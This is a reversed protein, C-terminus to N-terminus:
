SLHLYNCFSNQVFHVLRDAFLKGKRYGLFTKFRVQNFGMLFHLGTLYKVNRMWVLFGFCGCCYFSNIKSDSDYEYKSQVKSHSIEENSKNNWKPFDPLGVNELSNAWCFQVFSFNLSREAHESCLSPKRVLKTRIKSYFILKLQSDCSCLNRCESEHM